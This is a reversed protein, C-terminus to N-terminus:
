VGVAFDVGEDLMGAFFDGTDTEAGDELAVMGGLVDVAPGEIGAVVRLVDKAGPLGVPGGARDDVNDAEVDPLSGDAGVDEAAALGAAGCRVDRTEGSEVADALDAAVGRGRAGTESVTIGLFAAAGLVLKAGAAFCAVEEVALGARVGPAPEM